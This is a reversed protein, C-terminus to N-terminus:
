DKSVAEPLSDFRTRDKDLFEKCRSCLHGKHDDAHELSGPHMIRGCASHFPCFPETSCPLCHMKGDNGMYYARAFAPGVQYSEPLVMAPLCLCGRLPKCEVRPPLRPQELSWPQEPFAVPGKKGPIDRPQKGRALQVTPPRSPPDLSRPNHTGACGLHWFRGFASRYNAPLPFRDRAFDRPSSAAADAQTTPEPSPPPDAFLRMFDQLLFMPWGPLCCGGERDYMTYWFGDTEAVVAPMSGGYFCILPRKDFMMCEIPKYHPQAYLPQARRDLLDVDFLYPQTFAGPQDLSRFADIHLDQGSLPKYISAPDTSSLDQIDDKSSGPRDSPLPQGPSPQTAQAPKAPMPKPLPETDKPLFTQSEPPRLHQQPHPEPKTEAPSATPQPTPDTATSAAQPEQAPKPKPTSAAQTAAEQETADAWSDKKPVQPSQPPITPRASPPVHKPRAKEKPQLRSAPPQKPADEIENCFQPPPKRIDDPLLDWYTWKGATRYIPKYQMAAWLEQRNLPQQDVAAPDKYLCPPKQGKAINEKIAQLEFSDGFINFLRTDPKPLLWPKQDPAQPETSTETPMPLPSASSTPQASLDDDQWPTEPPILGQFIKDQSDYWERQALLSSNPEEPIPTTSPDAQSPAPTPEDPAIVHAPEDSAQASSPLTAGM